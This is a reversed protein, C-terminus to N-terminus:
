LNSWRMDSQDDLIQEIQVWSFPLMDRERLEDSSLGQDLIRGSAIDRSFFGVNTPLLLDKDNTTETTDVIGIEIGHDSFLKPRGKTIIGNERQVIALACQSNNLYVQQAGFMYGFRGIAINSLLFILGVLFLSRM